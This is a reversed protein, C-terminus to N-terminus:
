LHSANAVAYMVLGFRLASVLPVNEHSQLVRGQDGCVSHTGADGSEDLRAALGLSAGSSM